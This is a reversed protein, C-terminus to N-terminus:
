FDMKKKGLSEVGLRGATGPLSVNVCRGCLLHCRSSRATPSQPFGFPSQALRPCWPRTRLESGNSPTLGRVQAEAESREVAIVNGTNGFAGETVQCRKRMQLYGHKEGWSFPVHDCCGQETVGSIRETRLVNAVRDGCHCM